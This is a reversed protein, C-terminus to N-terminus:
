LIFLSGAIIKLHEHHYCDSIGELYALPRPQRKPFHGISIEITQLSGEFKMHSKSCPNRFFCKHIKQDREM